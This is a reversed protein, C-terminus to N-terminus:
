KVRVWRKALVNVNSFTDLGFADKWTAVASYPFLGMKWDVVEIVTGEPITHNEGPKIEAGVVAIAKFRHPQGIDGLIQWLSKVEGGTEDRREGSVEIATSPKHEPGGAERLSKLHATELMFEKDVYNISMTDLFDGTHHFEGYVSSWQQTLYNNKGVELIRITWSTVKQWSEEPKSFSVVVDGASFKHRRDNVGTKGNDVGKVGAKRNRKFRHDLWLYVGFAVYACGIIFLILATLKHM